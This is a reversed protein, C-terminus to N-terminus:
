DRRGLLAGLLVGAGAAIAVAKWPNEKVYEEGHELLERGNELAYEQLDRAAHLAQELMDIGRARLDEATAGTLSAADSFLAQADHLLDRMNSNALRIQNAQM